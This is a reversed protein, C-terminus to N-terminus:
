VNIGKRMIVRKGNAVSLCLFIICQCKRFTVKSVKQVTRSCIKLKLVAINLKRVHQPRYHVVAWSQCCELYKKEM